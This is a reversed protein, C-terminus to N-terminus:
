LRSETSESSRTIVNVAVRRETTQLVAVNGDSLWIM